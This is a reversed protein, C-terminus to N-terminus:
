FDVTIGLNVMQSTFDLDASLGQLVQAELTLYMDAIGYERDLIFAEQQDLATISFHFGGGGGVAPAAAFSPTKNDDRVEILGFYTGGAKVFPVAWQRRAYEFRYSVYASVPVIYLNYVEEAQSGSKKFYGNGRATAFGTGLVFGLRGFKVYPQWEYDYNLGILGSSGYFDSFSKTGSSTTAGSISPPTLVGLRLSSSQTKSKKPIKYQYSGDANVRSLGQAAGPHPVRLVGGQPPGPPKVFQRETVKPAQSPDYRNSQVQPAANKSPSPSAVKSEPALAAKPKPTEELTLPEDVLEDSEQAGLGASATLVLLLVWRSFNSFFSNPQTMM